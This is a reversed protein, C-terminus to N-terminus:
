TLPHTYVHVCLSTFSKWHYKQLATFHMCLGVEITRVGKALELFRVTRILLFNSYSFAINVIMGVRVTFDWMDLLVNIASYAIYVKGGFSSSCTLVKQTSLRLFFAYCDMTLGNSNKKNRGQFLIRFGKLLKHNVLVSLSLCLSLSGM